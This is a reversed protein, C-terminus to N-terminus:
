GSKSRRPHPAAHSARDPPQRRRSLASAVVRPFRAHLRLVWRLPPRPPCSSDVVSRSATVNGFSSNLSVHPSHEREERASSGCFLAKRGPKLPLSSPLSRCDAWECWFSQQPPSSLAPSRDRHGLAVPVSMRWFFRRPLGRFPSNGRRFAPAPNSGAFSPNAIRERLGSPYGAASPGQMKAFRVPLTM